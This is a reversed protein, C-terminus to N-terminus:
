KNGKNIIKKQELLYFAIALFVFGFIQLIGSQKLISIIMLSSFIMFVIIWIIIKKM